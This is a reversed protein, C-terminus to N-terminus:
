CNNWNITIGRIWRKVCAFDIFAREVDTLNEEMYVMEFPRSCRYTGELVNQAHQKSEM